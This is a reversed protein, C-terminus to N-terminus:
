GPRRGPADTSEGGDRLRYRANTAAVEVVLDAEDSRPEDNQDAPQCVPECEALRRTEVVEDSTTQGPVAARARLDDARGCGEPADVQSFSGRRASSHRRPM